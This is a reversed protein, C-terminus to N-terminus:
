CLSWASCFFNSLLNYQLDTEFINLDITFAFKIQSAAM